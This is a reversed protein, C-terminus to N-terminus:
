SDYTSQALEPYTRGHDAVMSTPLGADYWGVCSVRGFPDRAGAYGGQMELVNEFGAALLRRAALLSRHGTRCGIILPTASPFAQRMTKVFDPNDIMGDPGQHQWPVNYAGVPHGLEFEAESRVDVYRHGRERMLEAAEPATIRRVAAATEGTM